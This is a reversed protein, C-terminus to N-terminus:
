ETGRGTLGSLHFMAQVPNHDAHKFDLQIGHVELPEINPSAIFFDILTTPTTDPSYPSQLRRNTPTRSDYIFHWGALFDDPIYMLNESDFMNNSFAPEFGPPCQNYDGGAIVYNGKNYENTLIEKLFAMEKKRLQGDDFASNHTNIIVLEKGGSVPHRSLLFCRQLHFLKGPWRYSGPYSYRKVVEPRHRSSTMLGSEVRGMPAYWPLPVFRVDYNKGFAHNADPLLAALQDEMSIYYSRRSSRDVEQFLFVDTDDLGGILNLISDLNEQTRAKSTRVQRGGDYFFDMDDGLGAYGLNWTLMTLTDGTHLMDPQSTEFQTEKLDPNYWTIQAHLLFFLLAIVLMVLTILLIKLVKQMSLRSQKAM